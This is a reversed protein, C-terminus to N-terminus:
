TDFEVRLVADGAAEGADEVAGKVCDVFGRVGGVCGLRDVALVMDSVTSDTGCFGELCVKFLNEPSGVALPDTREILGAFLAQEIDMVLRTTKGPQPLSLISTARLQLARSTLARRDARLLGGASTPTILARTGAM